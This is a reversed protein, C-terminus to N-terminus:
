VYKSYIGIFVPGRIDIRGRKSTIYRLAVDSLSLNIDSLQKVMKVRMEIEGYKEIRAAAAKAIADLYRIGTRIGKKRAEKIIEIEELGKEPVGIINGNYVYVENFAAPGVLKVNPDREFVKVVINKGLIKGEYAIFECPSNADKNEEITKIIAKEILIGEKTKPEEIFKIHKVLSDDSLIWEGYFQPYSLERVDNYGYLLAAIREVGIGINLVPYEIEYRALAIPSYLGFDIVEFWDSSGLKAFVEYETGPAYYKATVKKREFKIESFGLRKLIENCVIKGDEISVEEDMIISSAVHHFRLHKEDEKQERRARLGISFLMIPKELKYQVAACTLFWASTMHSRLLQRSPIPELKKFQPFVDNLIKLALTDEINLGESIKEVLDDGDIKGKKYDHLINKLKKISEEDIPAGIEKLKEIEDKGIGIDPRPLTALYYCRDLIAPAERGYQKYIDVEDVIMPNIVEDFGLDLYIERLKNITEMILHPNGKRRIKFAGRGEIVLEKWAKEFDEDAKKLIEKINIKM